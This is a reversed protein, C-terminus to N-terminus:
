IFLTDAVSVFVIIIDLEKYVTKTKLRSHITVTSDVLVEATRISFLSIFVCLLEDTTLNIDEYWGVVSVCAAHTYVVSVRAFNGKVEDTWKVDNDVM